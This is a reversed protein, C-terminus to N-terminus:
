LIIFLKIIIFSQTDDDILHGHYEINRITNM